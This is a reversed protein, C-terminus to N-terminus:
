PNNLQYIFKKGSTSVSEIKLEGLCEEDDYLFFKQCGQSNYAKEVVVDIHSEDVLRAKFM